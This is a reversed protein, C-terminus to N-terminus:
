LFKRKMEESSLLRWSGTRLNGLVLPGQAVRKLYVVTHGVAELMLRVQRKRGEHITIEFESKGSVTKVKKIKAPATRTGELLVGRELQRIGQAPLSGALRVFYTKDVRFKPHTLRYALEGDNTLLLLGETDKDLRGVPKLHRLAEPLLDLVTKEAHRDQTTTVYGGPKNLLLYEYSKEEVLRGNVYVKDKAPVVASSPEKIVKGNVAVRGQQILDM